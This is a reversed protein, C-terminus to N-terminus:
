GGLGITARHVVVVRGRRVDVVDDFELSNEHFVDLPEAEGASCPVEQNAAVRGLDLSGVPWLPACLTFM